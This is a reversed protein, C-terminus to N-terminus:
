LIFKLVREMMEEAQNRTLNPIYVGRQIVNGSKIDQITYYWDLDSQILELGRWEFRQKM